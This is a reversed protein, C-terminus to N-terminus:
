AAAQQLGSVKFFDRYPLAGARLTRKQTAFDVHYLGFKMDYGDNWEFNDMLTWFYYGRVDYGEQIAKHVVSLYDKIFKARNVDKGDALGNETIYMPVGLESMDVIAEYLTEPRAPYEMDTMAQHPYTTPGPGFVVKSYFNIGIFDCSKPADPNTGRVRVVGPIRYDYEGTMLFNKVTKHAFAFNLFGAMPKGSLNRLLGVLWNPAYEPNYAEGQLLQHILGIKVQNGGPMSKLTKYVEVHANLLNKLVRGASGFRGCHGPPHIGLVYGCASSVTPENITGWFEVKTGIREFVKACYRVFYAINEEKEFAGKREFWYPHVFHLLTVMPKIGNALLEDILRNYFNLIEENFQGEVPEVESWEISFRFTNCGLEKILKIDNLANDWFGCAYGVKENNKIAPGWVTKANVTVFNDQFWAWNSYGVKHGGNQFASLGVGKLFGQPFVLQDGNNGFLSLFATLIFALSLFYKKQM